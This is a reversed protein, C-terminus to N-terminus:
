DRFCCNINGLFSFDEAMEGLVKFSLPQDSVVCLDLDSNEKATWKARSGFAWVAYQPVHKKLIDRVIKLYDIRLDLLPEAM